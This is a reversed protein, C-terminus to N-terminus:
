PGCKNELCLFHWGHPLSIPQCPHSLGWFLWRLPPARRSPTISLAGGSQAAFTISEKSDYRMGDWNKEMNRRAGGERM